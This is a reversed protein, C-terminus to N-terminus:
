SSSSSRCFTLPILTVTHASQSDQLSDSMKIARLELGSSNFGVPQPAPTPTTASTGLDPASLAPWVITRSWAKADDTSRILGVSKAVVVNMLVADRQASDRAFGWDFFSFCPHDGCYLSPSCEVPNRCGAKAAVLGDPRLM